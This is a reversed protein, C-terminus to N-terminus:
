GFFRGSYLIIMLTCYVFTARLYNGLTTYFFYNGLTTYFVDDNSNEIFFTFSLVIFQYVKILIVSVFWFFMLYQPWGWM